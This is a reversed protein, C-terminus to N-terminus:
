KKNKNENKKVCMTYEFPITGKKLQYDTKLIIYKSLNQVCFKFIKDPHSYFLSKDEFDVYKSLSNFIIGKRCAKFMKTLIKLMVVYSQRHKDNFTGSLVVWDYKKKVKHRSIDLQLIQSNKDRKYKKKSIEIFQEYFDIGTYNCKLKKKRLYFLFNGLGSGVDLISDNSKLNACNVLHEFRLQQQKSTRAKVSAPSDGFKLYLNKYINYVKNKM